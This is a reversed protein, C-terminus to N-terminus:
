LSSFDRPCLPWTSSPCEEGKVCEGGSKTRYYGYGCYCKRERNPNCWICRIDRPPCMFTNCTCSPVWERDSPCNDNGRESELKQCEAVEVCRGDAARAYGSKCYCVGNSNIVCAEPCGIQSRKLYDKCTDICPKCRPKSELQQDSCTNSVRQREATGTAAISALIACVFLLSRMTQHKSSLSQSQGEMTSISYSCVNSNSFTNRLRQRRQKRLHFKKRAGLKHDADASPPIQTRRKVQLHLPCKVKRVKADNILHGLSNNASSVFPRVYSKSYFQGRCVRTRWM